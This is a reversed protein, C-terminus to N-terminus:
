RSVDAHKQPLIRDWNQPPSNHLSWEGVCWWQGEEALHLMHGVATIKLGQPMACWHTLLLENILLTVPPNSSWVLLITHGILPLFFEHHSKVIKDGQWHDQFSFTEFDSGQQCLQMMESINLCSQETLRCLIYVTSQKHCHIMVSALKGPFFLFCEKTKLLCHSSHSM